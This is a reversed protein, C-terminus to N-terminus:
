GAHLCLSLTIPSLQGCQPPHCHVDSLSSPFVATHQGKGTIGTPTSMQSPLHHSCDGCTGAQSCAAHCPNRCHQWRDEDRGPGSQPAQQIGGAEGKTPTEPNEGCHLGLAPHPSPGVQNQWGSATPHCRLVCLSVAPSRADVASTEM